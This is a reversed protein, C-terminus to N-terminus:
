GRGTPTRPRRQEVAVKAPTAPLLPRLRPLLQWLLAGVLRGTIRGDSLGLAALDDFVRPSAGAAQIGADLVADFMTLTALAGAHQMHAGFRRRLAARYSTAPDRAPVVAAAGALLGSAIAYYIGEGSLPNVLAAADGALLVRRSVLPQRSTSLPLRHALLTCPDPRVEPLLTRMSAQLEARSAREGPQLLRGYGVNAPGADSPFRWAYSLGGRQEFMMSPWTEGPETDYGRLAVALDRRAPAGVVRRVVSESGDAGIVIRGRISRDIDVFDAGSRLERATHRRWYAGATRAADLLRADFVLRPLIVIDDPLRGTVTAGRPTTLRMRRVPAYGDVLDAVRVGHAALERLAKGLVADGCCKDRPFERRDLLLVAAAPNASLAGIAAASGAPGSGVIVVDWLRTPWVDANPPM